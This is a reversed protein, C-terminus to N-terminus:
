VHNVVLGYLVYITFTENTNNDASHMDALETTLASFMPFLRTELAFCWWVITLKGAAATRHLNIVMYQVTDGM